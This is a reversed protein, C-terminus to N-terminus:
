PVWYRGGRSELPPPDTDFWISGADEGLCDCFEVTRNTDDLALDGSEFRGAIEHLLRAIEVHPDPAFAQGGTRVTIQIRSM